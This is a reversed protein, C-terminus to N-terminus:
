TIRRVGKVYREVQEGYGDIRNRAEELARVRETLERISRSAVIYNDHWHWAESRAKVMEERLSAVLQDHEERMTVLRAHLGDNEARLRDMRRQMEDIEAKLRAWLGRSIEEQQADAVAAKDAKRDARTYLWVASAGIMGLASGVWGWNEQAWKSWETM